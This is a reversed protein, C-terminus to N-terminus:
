EQQGPPVPDGCGRGDLQDFQALGNTSQEPLVVIGEGTNGNGPVGLISGSEEGHPVAWAVQASGGWGEFGLNCHPAIREELEEIELVIKREM